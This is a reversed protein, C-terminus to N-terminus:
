AEPEKYHSLGDDRREGQSQTIPFFSNGIERPYNDLEELPMCIKELPIHLDALFIHIEELSIHIERMWKHLRLFSKAQSKAANASFRVESQGQRPRSM